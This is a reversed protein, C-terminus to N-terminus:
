SSQFQRPGKGSPGGDRSAAAVGDNRWWRREDECVLIHETGCSWGSGIIEMKSEQGAIVVHDNNREVEAFSKVINTM